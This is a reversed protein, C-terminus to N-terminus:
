STSLLFNEVHSPSCYKGFSSKAAHGGMDHLVDPDKAFEKLSNILDLPVENPSRISIPSFDM